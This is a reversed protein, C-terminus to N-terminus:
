ITEVSTGAMLDYGSSAKLTDTVVTATSVPNIAGVKHPKMAISQPRFALRRRSCIDNSPVAPVETSCMETATIISINPPKANQQIEETVADTRGELVEEM